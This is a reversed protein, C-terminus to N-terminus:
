RIRRKPLEGFSLDPDHDVGERIRYATRTRREPEFAADLLEDVFHPPVSALPVLSPM